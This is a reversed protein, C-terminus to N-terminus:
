GLLGNKRIAYGDSLIDISAITVWEKEPVGVQTLFYEWENLNKFYRREFTIQKM